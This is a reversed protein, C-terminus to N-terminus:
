THVVFQGPPRAQQRRLHRSNQAPAQQRCSVGLPVLCGVATWLSCECQVSLAVQSTSSAAVGLPKAHM